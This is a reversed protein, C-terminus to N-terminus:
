RDWVEVSDQFRHVSEVCRMVQAALALGRPVGVGFPFASTVLGRESGGRETTLM